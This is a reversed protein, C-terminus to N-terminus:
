WCVSCSCHARSGGSAISGSRCRASGNHSPGFGGARKVADCGPCTGRDEPLPEASAQIPQRVAHVQLRAWANAHAVLDLPEEPGATLYALNDQM